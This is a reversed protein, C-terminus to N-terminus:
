SSVFVIRDTLRKVTPDLLVTNAGFESQSTLRRACSNRKHRAGAELCLNQFGRAFLIQISQKRSLPNKIGTPTRGTTKVRSSNGEAVVLSATARLVSTLYDAMEIRSLVVLITSNDFRNM